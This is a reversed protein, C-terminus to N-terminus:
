YEFPLLITTTSRDAETIIWVKEGTELTYISYLTRLGMQVSLDNQEKDEEEIEGWDGAAHRSLFEVPDQGAHMLCEFATRTIVTMGLPFLPEQIEGPERGQEQRNGM